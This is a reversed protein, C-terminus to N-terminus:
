SGQLYVEARMPRPAPRTVVMALAGIVIAIGSVELTGIEEDLLWWAYLPGLVPSLLSILGMITLPVYALAYNNLLHGIGPILAMAIVPWWDAGVPPRFGHGFVLAAVVAVPLAFITLGVQYTISDLSERVRKSVIVFAAGSLAAILGLMDGELTAVGSPDGSQVVVLAGALAVVSWLYLSRSPREGFLQRAAFLLVVPQLAALVVVHTVSTRRIALVFFVMSIGLFFGGLWCKRLNSMTLRRGGAFLLVFYVLLGVSFRWFVFRFELLNSVKVLIGGFVMFAVSLVAVLRPAISSDQM